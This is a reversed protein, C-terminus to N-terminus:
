GISRTSPFAGFPIRFRNNRCPSARRLFVDLSFVKLLSVKGKRRSIFYVRFDFFFCFWVSLFRDSTSFFFYSTRLRSANIKKVGDTGLQSYRFDVFTSFTKFFLESFCFFVSLNTEENFNTKEFKWRVAVLFKNPQLAAARIEILVNVTPAAVRISSAITPANFTRNVIQKPEISIFVTVTDPARRFSIVYVKELMTIRYIIVEFEFSFFLCVFVKLFM